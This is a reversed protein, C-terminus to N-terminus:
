VADRYPHSFQWLTRHSLLPLACGSCLAEINLALTRKVM